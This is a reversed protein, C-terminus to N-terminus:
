EYSLLVEKESETALVAQQKIFLKLQRALASFICNNINNVVNMSPKTNAICEVYSKLLLVLASTPICGESVQFIFILFNM